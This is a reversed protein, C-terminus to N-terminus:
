YIPFFAHLCVMHYNSSCLLGVLLDSFSLMYEFCWYLSGNKLM